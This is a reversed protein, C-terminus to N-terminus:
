CNATVFSQQQITNDRAAVRGRTTERDGFKMENFLTSNNAAPNDNEIRDNGPIFLHYQSTRM